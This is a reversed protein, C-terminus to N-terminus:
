LGKKGFHYTPDLITQHTKPSVIILNDLNYVDGGQHIPQKHHLIYVKHAGYQESVPTYPAKGELMRMRNMRNFENAYRSDAVTKWFEAKFEDFSKFEKGVLKNRIEQPDDSYTPKKSKGNKWGRFNTGLM